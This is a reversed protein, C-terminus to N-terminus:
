APQRIALSGPVFRIMLHRIAMAQDLPILVPNSRKETSAPDHVAAGPPNELTNSSAPRARPLGGARPQLAVESVASSCRSGACTAEPQTVSGGRSVACHIKQLCDQLFM